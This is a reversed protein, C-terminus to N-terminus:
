ANEVSEEAQSASFPEVPDPEVPDPEALPPNPNTTGTSQGIQKLTLRNALEPQGALRFAGRMLGVFISYTTRFEAVEKDKAVQKGRAKARRRVASALAGELEEVKSEYIALISDATATSGPIVADGLDFDEQRLTWSPVKTQRILAGADDAIRAPFGAADAQERTFHNRCETRGRDFLTRLELVLRDRLQRFSANERYTALLLTEALMMNVLTKRLRRLLSDILEHVNPGLEGEQDSRFLYNLAAVMDGRHEETFEEAFQCLRQLLTISKSVDTLAM